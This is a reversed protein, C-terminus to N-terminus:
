DDRCPMWGDGHVPTPASEPCRNKTPDRGSGGRSPTERGPPRSWRWSAPRSRRQCSPGAAVSEALADAGSGGILPPQLGGVFGALSVLVASRDAWRVPRDAAHFALWAILRPVGAGLPEGGHDRRHSPDRGRLEKSFYKQNPTNVVLTEAPLIEGQVPEVGRGERHIIRGFFRGIKLGGM